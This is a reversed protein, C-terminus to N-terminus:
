SASVKAAHPLDDVNFGLDLMMGQAYTTRKKTFMHMIDWGSLGHTITYPSRIDSLVVGISDFTSFRSDYPALLEITTGEAQAMLTNGLTYRKKTM